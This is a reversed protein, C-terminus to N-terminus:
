LPSFNFVLRNLLSLIKKHKLNKRGHPMGNWLYKTNRWFFATDQPPVRNMAGGSNLFFFGSESGKAKELFSRIAEIAEPPLIQEVWTSSWSTNQTDFLSEAPAWFEIAESLTVEDIFVKIPSGVDTLTTILNELEAKPGLFIGQSRLLSDTKPTIEM